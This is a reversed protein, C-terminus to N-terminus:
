SNLLFLCSFYVSIKIEMTTEKINVLPAKGTRNSRKNKLCTCKKDIFSTLNSEYNPWYFRHNVIEVIKDFGLHGMNEYLNTFILRHCCSSM